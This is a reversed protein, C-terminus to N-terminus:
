VCVIIADAEGLRRMDTTVDFRPSGKLEAVLEPGLHKLYTEGSKLATIKSADVDFGLVPFGAAHFAHLLPLGVYGLGIVGVKATQDKIQQRISMCRSWYFTLPLRRRPRSNRRLPLLVVPGKRPMSRPM